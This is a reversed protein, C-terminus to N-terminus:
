KAPTKAAAAELQDGYKEWLREELAIVAAQQAKAFGTSRRCEHDAASLAFEKEKLEAVAAPDPEFSATPDIEAEPDAPMVAEWLASMEDSISQEAEHPAAFDYGAEAICESWRGQAESLSPDDELNEYEVQMEETMDAVAPDDWIQAQNVEHSAAGWCGEEEWNSEIPADPDAEPDVETMAGYLAENYALQESESMAAVYEQNPDTSPEQGGGFLEEGTTVGYGYQEVFEESGWDPADDSSMVGGSTPDVPTYEFGEETMCAAILEEIRRQDDQFQEDDFSGGVKEFFATVPGTEDDSPGAADSGTCGVLVLAAVAGALAPLVPPRRM